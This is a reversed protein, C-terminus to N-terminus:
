GRRGRVCLAFGKFPHPFLLFGVPLGERMAALYPGTAEPGLLTGFSAGRADGGCTGPVGGFLPVTSAHPCGRFLRRIRQYEV